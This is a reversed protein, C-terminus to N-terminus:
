KIDEKRVIVVDKRNEFDEITENRYKGEEVNYGLPVKEDRELYYNAILVPDSNKYLGNEDKPTELVRLNRQYGSVLTFTDEEEGSWHGEMDVGLQNKMIKEAEHYPAEIYYFIREKPKKWGIQQCWFETWVM